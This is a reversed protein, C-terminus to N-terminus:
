IKVIKFNKLILGWPLIAIVAGIIVNIILASYHYTPEDLALVKNALLNLGLNIISM